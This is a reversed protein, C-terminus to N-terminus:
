HVYRDVNISPSEALVLGAYKEEVLGYGVQGNRGVKVVTSYM